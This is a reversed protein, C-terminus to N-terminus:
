KRKSKAITSWTKQNLNVDQSDKWGFLNKSAFISFVPNYRGQLANQLIFKLQLEKCSQYALHLKLYRKRNEPKLWQMFTDLPIKKQRLFDILVPFEVAQKGEVPQGKVLLTKEVFSNAGFYDILEDALSNPDIHYKKKAM